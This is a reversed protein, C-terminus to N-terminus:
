SGTSCSSTPGSARRSAASRTRGLRRHPGADPQGHAGGGGAARRDAPPVDARLPGHRRREVGAGHRGADPRRRRAQLIPEGGDLPGFLYEGDPMDLARNCDTVLALRDPGKVKYALLLLERQLHKGDAIVETTLEDFYLTAEMCAAACRTPRRRGCGPGTPCPASCTTSTGCAGASPRRWRSSPPTRTAPTAASAADGAPASSSRPGRCNRPSRPRPSATPSTSTSSTSTPSRAAAGRGGPHCGRAEYAFYPGYFHAGLIRRRRRHGRKLRRCLDLFALHQEHRAVTTTPLLSTTGHRAHARCVTRFAEETGDMFDAGDGGHVHLDVFGPPSTAARAPRHEPRDHGEAEPDPGSRPSGRGTWRSGHGRSCGTKSSSPAATSSSREWVDNVRNRTRRDFGVPRVRRPWHDPDAHFVSRCGVSGRWRTTFYPSRNRVNAAVTHSGAMFECLFRHWHYGSEGAGGAGFQGPAHEGM